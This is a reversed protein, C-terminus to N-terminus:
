YIANIILDGTPANGDTAGALGRFYITYVLSPTITKNSLTALVTATGAKRIEFTYNKGELSAFDSYGKFPKNAVLVAGDKVALDVAGNDPSLNVFRLNANGSSPQTIADHLLLFEPTAAKNVLCLSYALNQELTITDSKVVTGGTQTFAATRKGAYARFYDLGSGYVISNNNVRSGNLTFNLPQQGPSDQIVSLLAVPPPPTTDHNKICSTLAMSLICVAGIRTVLGKSINKFNKM